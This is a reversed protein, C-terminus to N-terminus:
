RLLFSFFSLNISFEFVTKSVYVGFKLLYQEEKLFILKMHWTDSFYMKFDSIFNGHPIPAGVM